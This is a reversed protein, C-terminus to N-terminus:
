TENYRNLDHRYSSDKNRTGTRLTTTGPYLYLLTYAYRIKADIGLALAEDDHTRCQTGYELGLKTPIAGEYMAIVASFPSAQTAVAM